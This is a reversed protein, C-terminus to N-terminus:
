AQFTLYEDATIDEANEKNKVISLVLSYISTIYEKYISELGDKNNSIILKISAEFETNTM